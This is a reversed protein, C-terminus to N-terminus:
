NRHTTLHKEALSKKAYNASAKKFENIGKNKIQALIRKRQM